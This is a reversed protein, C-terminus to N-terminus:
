RAGLLLDNFDGDCTPNALSVARRHWLRACAEAMKRSAADHEGLVILEEVGDIPAFPRASGIAWTAGFGLQRAALASELGEAVALRQGPADLKVAAGTVAGLMRRETRPWLSPRDLRIRHIGTIEDTDISRFAAILCPVYELGNEGRWPCRPYYRLVTGALGGPLDLRRAALYDEALTGCPNTGQTWIKKASDTTKSESKRTDTWKVTARPSRWQPLGMRARVHDRCDRWNDGSFSYTVFGTATPKVALSRDHKSHNPGPCLVQGASVEGGLTAALARLDLSDFSRSDM